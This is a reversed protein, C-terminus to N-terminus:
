LLNQISFKILNFFIMDNFAENADVPYSPALLIKGKGYNIEGLLVLLTDPRAFWAGYAKQPYNSIFPYFGFPDGPVEWSNTGITSFGPLAKNGAFHDIYGWGNGIWYPIQKGGWQTVREKLIGKQFLVEAWKEDFRLILTAGKKTKELFTKLVDDALMGGALILNSLVNDNCDVGAQKLAECAAPWDCVTLITGALEKKYSVRNKLLVQEAGTALVEENKVVTGEITLYGARWEPSIQIKLNDTVPQAFTDGGEV